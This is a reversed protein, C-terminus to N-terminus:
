WRSLLYYRDSEVGHFDTRCIEGVIQGGGSEILSRLHSSSSHESSNLTLVLGDPKMFKKISSYFRYELTRSSDYDIINQSDEADSPITPYNAVVLDWKESEPIADFVDSTYVSVRDEIHNYRATFQAAEAAAPNVDALALTQCHGAALLYYGIYGPGACFDFIRESKGIGFHVMARSFDEAYWLGGGNLDPRDFVLLGHYSVAPILNQPQGLLRLRLRFLIADFLTRGSHWECLLRDSYRANLRCQDFLALDSQGKEMTIKGKKM